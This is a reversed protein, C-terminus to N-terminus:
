PEVVVELGDRRHAGQLELLLQPEQLGTAQHQAFVEIRGTSGVAHAVVVGGVEVSLVFAEETYWRHAVHLPQPFSGQRASTSSCPSTHAYTM